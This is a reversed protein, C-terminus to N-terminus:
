AAPPRQLTRLRRPLFAPSRLRVLIPCCLAEPCLISLFSLHELESNSVRYFYKNEIITDNKLTVDNEDFEVIIESLFKNQYFFYYNLPM